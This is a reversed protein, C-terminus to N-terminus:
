SISRRVACSRWMNLISSQPCLGRFDANSTSQPISAAEEDNNILYLLGRLLIADAQAIAAEIEADTAGLLDKRMM